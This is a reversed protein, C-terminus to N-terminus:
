IRAGHRLHPVSLSSLSSQGIHTNIHHEQIEGSERHPVFCGAPSSGAHMCLEPLDLTERWSNRAKNPLVRSSQSAHPKCPRTQRTHGEQMELSGAISTYHGQQLMSEPLCRLRDAFSGDPKRHGGYPALRELNCCGSTQASFCADASCPKKPVHGPEGYTPIVAEM